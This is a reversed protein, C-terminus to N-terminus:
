RSDPFVEEKLGDDGLVKYIKDFLPFVVLTQKTYPVSEYRCYVLLSILMNAFLLNLMNALLSPCHWSHLCVTFEAYKCTNNSILLQLQFWCSSCHVWPVIGWYYWYCSVLMISTSILPIWLMFHQNWNSLCVMINFLIM